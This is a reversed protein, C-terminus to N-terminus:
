KENEMQKLQNIRTMVRAIAKRCNKFAGTDKSNVKGQLPSMRVNGYHTNLKRMEAKLEHLMKYLKNMDTVQMVERTKALYSAM